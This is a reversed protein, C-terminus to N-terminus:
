SLKNKNKFTNKLKLNTSQPKKFMQYLSIQLNKASPHIILSQKIVMKKKYQKTLFQEINQKIM